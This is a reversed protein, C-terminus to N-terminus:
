VLDYLLMFSITGMHSLLLVYKYFTFYFVIFQFLFLFSICYLPLSIPHSPNSHLHISIFRLFSFCHFYYRFFHNFFFQQVTLVFKICFFHFIFFSFHFYTPHFELSFETPRVSLCVCPYQLKHRFLKHNQYYDM